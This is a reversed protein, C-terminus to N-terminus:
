HYNHRFNTPLKVRSTFVPRILEVAVCQRVEVHRECNHEENLRNKLDEGESELNSLRETRRRFSSM